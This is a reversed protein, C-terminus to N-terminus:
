EIIDMWTRNFMLSTTTGLEWEWRASQRSTLEAMKDRDKKGAILPPVSSSFTPFRFQRFDSINELLRFRFDSIPFNFFFKNKWLKKHFKLKHKHLTCVYDYDTWYDYNHLPLNHHMFSPTWCERKDFKKESWECHRRSYQFTTRVWSFWPPASHYKKVLKILHSFSSCVIGDSM